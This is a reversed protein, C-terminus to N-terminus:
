VLRQVQEGIRRLWGRAYRAYKDPQQSILAGLQDLRGALVRKAIASRNQQILAADTSPGIVGDTAVGLSSQLMRIASIHGAHVAFDLVIDALDDAMDGILHDLKTAQMWRAYNDAAETPNTPIPLNFQTLWGPTQGFRTLGKGDGVDAVGGERVLIRRILEDRAQTTM